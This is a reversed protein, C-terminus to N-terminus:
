SRLMSLKPTILPSSPRRSPSSFNSSIFFLDSIFFHVCTIGSLESQSKLRIGHKDAVRVMEEEIQRGEEGYERFGATEIVASRIGKQGCQELIQPITHAPTLITVLDVQDPIDLVSRYIRRTAIVGGSPGVAYVVGQFGFDILNDVINRGLNTPKSSVGVVAVSNPYFIERM